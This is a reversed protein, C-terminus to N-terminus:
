LDIVYVFEGRTTTYPTPYTLTNFHSSVSFKSKPVRMMPKTFRPGSTAFILGFSQPRTPLPPKNRAIFIILPPFDSHLSDELVRFITGVSFAHRDLTSTSSIIENYLLFLIM